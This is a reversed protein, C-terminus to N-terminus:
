ELLKLATKKGKTVGFGLLALGTTPISLKKLIPLVRERFQMYRRYDNIGGRLLDAEEHHGTGRLAQEMEHLIHQKLERAQPALLDRESALSSKALNRAHHGIQSQLAFAPRYEGQMIGQIMEATAHTRPLFPLTEQLLPNNMEFNAIGRENILREAERLQRSAGRRTIPMRRLGARLLARGTAIEPAHEIGKQIIEDMLTGEGKQGFVDAYSQPDYPLYESLKKQKNESPMNKEEPNWAQNITQSLGATGHELGQAIDHPLNHVNRGLHTLGILINRPLKSLFGEEDEKKPMPIKYQEFDDEPLKKRKYQEFEDM